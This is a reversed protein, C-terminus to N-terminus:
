RRRVLESGATGLALLSGALVLWTGTATALGGFASLGLVALALALAVALLIRTVPRPQVTEPGTV